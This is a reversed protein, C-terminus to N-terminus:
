LDWDLFSTQHTGASLSDDTREMYVLVRTSATVLVSVLSSVTAIDIFTPESRAAAEIRHMLEGIDHDGSMVFDRGDIELHTRMTELKGRGM